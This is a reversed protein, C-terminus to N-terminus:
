VPHTLLNAHLYKTTSAPQSCEWEYFSLELMPAYTEFLVSGLFFRWHSLTGCMQNARTFLDRDTQSKRVLTKATKKKHGMSQVTGKELHKANM